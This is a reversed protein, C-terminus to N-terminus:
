KGEIELSDHFQKWVAQITGKGAFDAGVFGKKLNLVSIQLTVENTIDKKKGGGEAWVQIDSREFVNSCDILNLFLQIWCSIQM